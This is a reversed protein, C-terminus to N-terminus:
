NAALNPNMQVALDLTKSAYGWENDYWAIFKFFTPDLQIGALVDFVCTHANGKIDSSVIAEQSVEVIGHHTSTSARRITECIQDYTTEDHLQCTLDLLSVNAVPVRVSMGTIKGALEPIINGVMKAAGTSTPIINELSSRGFRWDSKAIGDTTNQSATVSHVTTMLAREVGFNKHLIQVLPGVCNTTCSANSVINQGSYDAENVGNVFVPTDDKPPASMIVQKGGANIHAAALEQTLFHGTSEVVLDVGLSGWEINEPDRERFVRVKRGAIILSDGAQEMLHRLRGHVTDYKLLYALHDTPLLDNVGVVEIDDRALSARLVMRGIRGMGNIAIKLM